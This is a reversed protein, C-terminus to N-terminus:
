ATIYENHLWNAAEEDTSTRVDVDTRIMGHCYAWGIAKSKADSIDKAHFAFQPAFYGEYMEKLLTYTKM